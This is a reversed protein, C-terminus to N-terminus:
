CIKPKGKLTYMVIAKVFKSGKNTKDNSYQNSKLEILILNNSVYYSNNQLGTSQWFLAFFESAFLGFSM